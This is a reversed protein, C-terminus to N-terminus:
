IGTLRGLVLGLFEAHRQAADGLANKAKRDLPQFTTLAIHVGTKKVSRSWTGVVRGEHLVTPRFIGNTTMVAPFHRPSLVASRDAYGLFYEDFAPLLHVTSAAEAAHSEPAAWSCEEGIRFERLCGAAGDLGARADRLNLGAWWAFDRLTAPGHSRFYRLALEELAQARPLAPVQPLWEDLLVYAPQRAPANGLCITGRWAAGYLIYNGRPGTTDIGQAALAAFLEARTFCRGGQLSEFIAGDVRGLAATDLGLARFRAATRSLMAPGAVALLWRVDSAAVLHLTGRLAWTRVISRTAVADTITAELRDPLRVGLAWSASAADQAQMAAFHSLATAPAIGNPNAPHLGHSTLRWLPLEDVRLIGASM